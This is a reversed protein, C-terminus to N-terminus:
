EDEAMEAEVNIASEALETLKEDTEIEEDLTQQLLQVAEDEGLMEAYTRVTGYAAIEYHEVRQAAAILAADLVEPAADEEMMKKGEELLGEMGKCKEARTSEGLGELITELREIHQETQALHEEFGETLEEHSAAKAMKPLAKTIQKEASYIDKLEHVYLDRLTKLKM